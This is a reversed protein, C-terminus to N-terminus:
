LLARVSSTLYNDLFSYFELRQAQDEEEGLVQGRQRAEIWPPTGSAVVEDGVRVLLVSDDQEEVLLTIRLRIGTASALKWSMEWHRAGDAGRVVAVETDRLVHDTDRSLSELLATLSKDLDRYVWRVLSAARNSVDPLARPNNAKSGLAAMTGAHRRCYRLGAVAAGHEACWHTRCPTGRSDVYDCAELPQGECGPEGCRTVSPLPAPHAPVPDEISDVPESVATM